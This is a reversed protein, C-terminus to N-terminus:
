PFNTRWRLRDGGARSGSSRCKVRGSCRRRDSRHVSLRAGPITAIAQPALLKRLASIQVQLNNEEVVLGPWVRDFLETKSVVRDCHEILALLLDFAREGLAAPRGAAMLQREAPRVEVNGFRIPAHM